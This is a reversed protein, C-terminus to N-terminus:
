SREVKQKELAVVRQHRPHFKPSRVTLVPCTAKRLVAEAVSGSIAHSIGRRGHTGMVIVDSPLIRSEDLISDGPLGGRVRSTTPVGAASLAVSLDELRKALRGRKREREDAHDLTFDLGYSVPELVHLLEISAKAQRAVLVAYELADLSYDSFDIPVLLRELRIAGSSGEEGLGATQTAQVALVPCPATRIVREATSGLLVHELGSKGRTGVIVLDTDEARAVMVVEESPIGTAMRTEADIGRQTARRKVEVLYAMADKMLEALYQRNIEYDPNMGPPFELVSLVTLRARWLLALCYAYDEARRAGKSCDTAFLIRSIAAGDSM